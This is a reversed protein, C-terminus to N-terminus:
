IPLFQKKEVTRNTQQAVSQNQLWEKVVKITITKDRQKAKQYLANNGDFIKEAYYIQKLLKEHSNM